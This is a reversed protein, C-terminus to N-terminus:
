THINEWKCFQSITHVHVLFYDLSFEEDAPLNDLMGPLTTDRGSYQYLTRKYELELIRQAKNPDDQPLITDYARIRYRFTPRLWRHM